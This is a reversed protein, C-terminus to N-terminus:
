LLGVLRRMQHPFSLCFKNQVCAVHIEVYFNCFLYNYNYNYDYKYNYKYTYKYNNEYM